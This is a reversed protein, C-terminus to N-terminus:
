LEDSAWDRTAPCMVTSGAALATVFPSYLSSRMSYVNWRVFSDNAFQQLQEWDLSPKTTPFNCYTRLVEVVQTDSVQSLEPAFQRVRALATRENDSLDEPTVGRCDVTGPAVLDCGFYTEREVREQNEKILFATTALTAGALGLVVVAVTGFALVPRVAFWRRVPNMRSLREQRETERQEKARAEEQRRKEAEARAREAALRAEEERAERARQGQLRAQEAFEQRRLDEVEKSLTLEAEYTDSLQQIQTLTQSDTKGIWEPHEQFVRRLAERRTEETDM